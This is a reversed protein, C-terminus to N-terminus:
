PDPTVPDARMARRFRRICEDVFVGVANSTQTAGTIAEVHRGTRPDSGEAPAAGGVHIFRAGGAPESVNLGRFRDRFVKETIRGGLGPTEGHELFVVGLVKNMDPTVAMLGSIKAWFGMGELPFALGVLDKADRGGARYARMLTFTWGTEPDQRAETRDICRAVRESIDGPTM